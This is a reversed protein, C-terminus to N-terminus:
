ITELLKKLVTSTKVLQGQEESSLDEEIVREIGSASIICPVSLAVGDIGYQGNLYCSVSAITSRNNLISDAIYCVCTAIGYHTRGKRKIIETGMGSVEKEIKKKIDENFSKNMSSCFKEIPIGSVNVKSWM